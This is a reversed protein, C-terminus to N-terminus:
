RVWEMFRSASPRACVYLTSGSFLGMTIFLLPDLYYFYQNILIRKVPYGATYLSTAGMLLWYRHTQMCGKPFGTTGSTYQINLLDNRSPTERPVLDVPADDILADWSHGAGGRREGVVIVRDETIATSARDVGELVPLYDSHIVLFDADA